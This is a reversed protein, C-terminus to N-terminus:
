RSVEALELPMAAFQALPIPRLKLHQSHVGSHLFLREGKARAALCFSVDDMQFDSDPDNPDTREPRFPQMGLEELLFYRMLLFGLGLYEMEMLAGNAQRIQEVTPRIFGTGATVEAEGKETEMLYWAGVASYDPSSLLAQRLHCFGEYSVINDSDIWLVLDPPRLEAIKAVCTNRVDYINNGSAHVCEVSYEQLLSSYLGNWAQLWKDSFTSGPLCVVVREM